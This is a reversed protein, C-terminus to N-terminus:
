NTIGAYWIKANTMVIEFNAKDKKLEHWENKVNNFNDKKNKNSDKLQNLRYKVFLNYDTSKKNKLVNLNDAHTNQVTGVGSNVVLTEETEHLTKAKGYEGAAKNLNMITVIHENLKTNNKVEVHDGREGREGREGRFMPEVNNIIPDERTIRIITDNKVWVKKNNKIDVVWLEKDYGEMVSNLEYGEASLGFHLPSLENGTYFHKSSNICTKKISNM